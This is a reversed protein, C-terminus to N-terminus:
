MFKKEESETIFSFTQLGSIYVKSECHSVTMERKAGWGRKNEDSAKWGDRTFGLVYSTKYRVSVTSLNDFHLNRAYVTPACCICFLVPDFWFPVFDILGKFSIKTKLKSNQFDNKKGAEM